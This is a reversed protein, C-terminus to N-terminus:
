SITMTPIQYISLLLVIIPPLSFRVSEGSCSQGLARQSDGIGAIGGEYVSRMVLLYISNENNPLNTASLVCM